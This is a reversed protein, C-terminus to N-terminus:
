EVVLKQSSLQGDAHRLEVLYMGSVLEKINIQAVSPDSSTQLVQSLLTRGTYDTIRLQAQHLSLGSGSEIQVWDSAPNPFLKLPQLVPGSLGSISGTNEIKIDGNNIQFFVNENCAM